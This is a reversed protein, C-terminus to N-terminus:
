KQWNVSPLSSLNNNEDQDPLSKLYEIGKNTSVAVGKIGGSKAINIAEEKSIIQGDSLQYGMVTGQEKALATIQKADINPTPIDKLASMPLNMNDM